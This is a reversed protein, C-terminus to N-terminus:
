RLYQYLGVLGVIAGGFALLDGGTNGVLLGV